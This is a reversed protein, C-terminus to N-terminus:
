GVEGASPGALHQEETDHLKWTRLKEVQQREQESLRAWLLRCGDNILQYVPVDRIQALARMQDLLLPDFLATLRPMESTPLSGKGKRPRGRRKEREM